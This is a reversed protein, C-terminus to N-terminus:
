LLVEYQLVTEEGEKVSGIVKGGSAEAVKKSGHNREGISLLVKKVGAEALVKVALKLAETGYGRGRKAPRIRYTVHGGLREFEPTLKPRVNVTGLYNAGDVLWYTDTRVQSPRLNVGKALDQRYRLYDAFGDAFVKAEPLGKSDEVHRFENCAELFSTKYKESPVELSLM